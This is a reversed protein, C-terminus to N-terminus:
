NLLKTTLDVELLANVRDPLDDKVQLGQECYTLAEQLNNNLYYQYYAKIRCAIVDNYNIIDKINKLITIILSLTNIDFVMEIKNM